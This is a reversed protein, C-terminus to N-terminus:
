QQEILRPQGDTGHVGPRIRLNAGAREGAHLAENEHYSGARDTIIRPHRRQFHRDLLPDSVHVLAAGPDDQSEQDLAHLFGRMLGYMFDRRDRNSKLGKARKHTRWAHDAHHVLADHMYSAVEVHEVTGLLELIRGWRRKQPLYANSYIVRVGFHDVLITALMKEWLSFRQKAKGVQRFTYRAHDPELTLDHEALLRRALRAAAQAEHPNDSTSLAVLRRVKRLLRDIGEDGGEPLGAARADIQRAACVQRFVPGHPAENTIGRVEYVYQHAMEHRLVEVVQGWPAKLCLERQLSLTRTLPDFLGLASTDHLTIVPPRMAGAFDQANHRCWVSHLVLLLTRELKLHTDTKM